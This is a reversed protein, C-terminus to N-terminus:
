SLFVGSKSPVPYAESVSCDNQEDRIQSYLAIGDLWHHAFDVLEVISFDTADLRDSSVGHLLSILHSYHGFWCM